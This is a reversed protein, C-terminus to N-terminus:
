ALAAELLRRLEGPRHVGPGVVLEACRVGDIATRLHARMADAGPFRGPGSMGFLTSRTGLHDRGLLATCLRADAEDPALSRLRFSPEQPDVTCALIARVPAERVPPAGLAAALQRPSMILRDPDTAPPRPDGAYTIELAAFRAALGPVLGLGGTRVSIITPIGIGTTTGGGRRLVMRDNSLFGAGPTAALLGCLLSTKGAGKDGALLVAQGGITFGAAHLVTLGSRWTHDMGVELITRMWAGRRRRNSTTPYRVEIASGVDYAVDFFSEYARRGGHPARWAPLTEAQSDLVFAVEPKGQAALARAEAVAADDRRLRVEVDPIQEPAATVPQFAPGMFDHLWDLDSADDSSALLRLGEYHLLTRHM